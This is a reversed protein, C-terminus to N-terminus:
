KKKRRHRRRFARKMKGSMDYETVVFIGDGVPDPVYIVELYRGADTQGFRIRSRNRGPMDDGRRSLVEHVEHERVGHDYMHPLGTEEDCWFRLEM